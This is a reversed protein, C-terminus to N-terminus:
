AAGLDARARYAPGDGPNRPLLQGLLRARVAGAVGVDGRSGGRASPRGGWVPHAPAGAPQRRVRGLSADASPRRRWAALWLEAAFGVTVLVAHRGHAPLLHERQRPWNLM